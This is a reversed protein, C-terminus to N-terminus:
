IGSEHLRGSTKVKGRRSGLATSAEFRASIRFKVFYGKRENGGLSAKTRLSSQDINVAVRGANPVNSAITGALSDELEGISLTNLFVTVRRSFQSQMVSGSFNVGAPNTYTFTGDADVVLNAVGRSSISGLRRLTGKFNETGQWATLRVDPFEKALPALGGFLCFIAGLSLLHFYRKSM